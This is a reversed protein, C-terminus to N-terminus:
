SVCGGVEYVAGSASRFVGADVTVHRMDDSHPVTSAVPGFCTGKGAMADADWGGEYSEVGDSYSGVGQRVRVGKEEVYEGETCPVVPRYASYRGCDAPVATTLPCLVQCRSSAGFTSCIVGNCDISM